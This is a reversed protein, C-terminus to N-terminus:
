VLEWATAVELNEVKDETLLDIMQAHTFKESGFYRAAGTLWWYGSVFIAAYTYDRDHQVSHSTFRMVTGEEIRKVRAIDTRIAMVSM